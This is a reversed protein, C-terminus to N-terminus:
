DVGLIPDLLSSGLGGVVRYIRTANTADISLISRTLTVVPNEFAMLERRSIGDDEENRGSRRLALLFVSM